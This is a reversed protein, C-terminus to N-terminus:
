KYILQLVKLFKYIITLILITQTTVFLGKEIFHRPKDKNIDVTSALINCMYLTHCHPMSIITFVFTNVKCHPHKLWQVVKNPM